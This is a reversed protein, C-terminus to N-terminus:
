EHDGGTAPITKSDYYSFKAFKLIEKVVQSMWGPLKAGVIRPIALSGQEYIAKDIAESLVPGARETILRTVASELLKRGSETKLQKVVIDHVNTNGALFGAAIGEANDRLYSQMATSMATHLLTVGYNTQLVGRFSKVIAEESCQDVFSVTMEQMKEDTLAEKMKKFVLERFPQGAGSLNVANQKVAEAVEEGSIDLELVIKKMEYEM